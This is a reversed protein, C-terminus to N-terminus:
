GGYQGSIDRATRAVATGIDSLREDTIRAMPGSLSIAAVPVGHEDLIAGAVCRLGVAHEEDDIAYGRQRIQALDDRLRSPTDLTKDTIRPLGHTRLIRTLDADNMHALMAKGAGSCHLRVRGGPRAIARMMQRSEVQGMCIAEGSDEVYLNVTEGAEEMLRRMFPRAIAVVDRTRTFANGVIFARIGIQWLSQAADFRVFGESELTTLLRHSTSTPLNVMQSIDTLGMGDHSESVANLIALARTLSQVQGSRAQDSKPAPRPSRAM